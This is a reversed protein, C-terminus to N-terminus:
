ISEATDPSQTPQPSKTDQSSVAREALDPSDRSYTDEWDIFNAMSDCQSAAEQVCQMQTLASLGDDKRTSCPTTSRRECWPIPSFGAILDEEVLEPSALNAGEGINVVVDGHNHEDTGEPRNPTPLHCSAEDMPQEAERPLLDVDDSTSMSQRSALSMPSQMLNAGSMYNSRLVIPFDRDEPLKIFSLSLDLSLTLRLYTRPKWALVDRWSSIVSNSILATEVRALKVVHQIASCVWEGGDYRPEFEKMAKVLVKYRQSKESLTTPIDTTSLVQLDLISLLLPLAIFAMASLPLYRVLGLHGLEEVCDTVGLAAEQVERGHESSKYNTFCNGVGPQGSHMTAILAEFNSLALKAYSHTSHLCKYYMYMLSVHVTVSQDRFESSFKSTPAITSTVLCWQKLASRCRALKAVEGPNYGKQHCDPLCMLELLDTLVGCLEMLRIHIRVLRRKNEPHIVESQKIENEFDSPLLVPPVKAIQLRRRLGLSLVRDRIVCCWWLRRLLQSKDSQTSSYQDRWAEHAGLCRAHHIAISLWLTNPMEPGTKSDPYWFSLLLAVQSLVLPSLEVNFDFLMKARQYLTVRAKRIDKFGLSQITAQLTFASTAFIMAQILLFPIKPSSVRSCYVDWFNGEDLFPLFPHVHLFYLRVFEDLIVKPPLNFCGKVNLFQIDEQSLAAANGITIFSYNSFHVVNSRTSVIHTKTAPVSDLLSSETSDLSIPTKGLSTRSELAPEAQAATLRTTLQYFQGRLCCFQDPPVTIVEVIDHGTTEPVTSTQKALLPPYLRKSVRRTLVCEKSDLYCNTCPQGRVIVDCRVKRERCAVCAKAARRRFQVQSMAQTLGARTLYLSEISLVTSLSQYLHEPSNDDKNMAADTISQLSQWAESNELMLVAEAEELVEEGLGRRESPEWRRAGEMIEAFVRPLRRIRSFRQEHFLKSAEDFEDVYYSTVLDDFSEFDMAGVCEMIKQFRANLSERPM